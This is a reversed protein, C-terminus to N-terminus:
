CKTEEEDKQKRFIKDFAGTEGRITRFMLEACNSEYEAIKDTQM